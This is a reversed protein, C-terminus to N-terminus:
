QRGTRVIISSGSDPYNTTFLGSFDTISTFRIMYTETLDLNDFKLIINQPDAFRVTTPIRRTSGTETGARELTFNSENINRQSFAIEKTFTIRIVDEGVIVAEKIAPNSGQNNAAIFTMELNRTPSSLNAERISQLVRVRYSNNMVFHRDAKFFLRVMFPSVAPDYYVSAPTINFTRDDNGTINYNSAMTASAVDLVRDFYVELTTLDTQSAGVLALDSSRNSNLTNYDFPITHNALTETGPHNQLYVVTLLYQRQAIMPSQTQLRVVNTPSGTTDTLVSVSSIDLRTGDTDRIFYNYVQGGINRDVPQTFTINLVYQSFSSLDNVTFSSRPENVVRASFSFSDAHGRNLRAM